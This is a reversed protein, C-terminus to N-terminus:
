THHPPPVSIMRNKSDFDICEISIDHGDESGMKTQYVHGTATEVVVGAILSCSRVMAERVTGELNAVHIRDGSLELPFLHRSRIAGHSVNSRSAIILIM